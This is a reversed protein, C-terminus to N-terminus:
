TSCQWLGPNDPPGDAQTTSRAWDPAKAISLMVRYGSKRAANIHDQLKAFEGGLQDRSPELAKWSAQLKIWGVNLSKSASMLNNWGGDDVNWDLQVGMQDTKFSTVM